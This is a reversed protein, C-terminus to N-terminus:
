FNAFNNLASGPSATAKMSASPACPSATQNQTRGQQALAITAGTSLQPTGLTPIKASAPITYDIGSCVEVGGSSMIEEFIAAREVDLSFDRRAQLSKAFEQEAEGLIRVREAEAEKVIRAVAAKAKERFAEAKAQLEAVEKEGEADIRTM